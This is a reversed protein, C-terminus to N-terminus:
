QQVEVGVGIGPIIFTAPDIVTRHKKVGDLFPQHIRFIRDLNAYSGGIVGGQSEVYEIGVPNVCLTHVGKNRFSAGCLTPVCKMALTGRRVGERIQEESLKVDM